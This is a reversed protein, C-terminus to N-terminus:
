GALEGNLLKRLYALVDTATLGHMGQDEVAMDAAASHLCCGLQAAL